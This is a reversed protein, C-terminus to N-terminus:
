IKSLIDKIQFIGTKINGRSFVLIGKDLHKLLTDLISDIDSSQQSYKAELETKEKVLEENQLKLSQNETFLEHEKNASDWGDVWIEGMSGEYPRKYRPIGDYYSKKGLDFINNM